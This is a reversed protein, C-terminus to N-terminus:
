LINRMKEISIKPYCDCENSWVWKKIFKDKKYFENKMRFRTVIKIYNGDRYLEIYEEFDEERPCHPHRNKIRILKKKLM